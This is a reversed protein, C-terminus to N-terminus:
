WRKNNLDKWAIFDTPRAHSGNNGLKLRNCVEKYFEPSIGGKFNWNDVGDTLELVGSLTPYKHGIKNNVIYRSVQVSKKFNYPKMEKVLRDIESEVKSTFRPQNEFDNMMQSYEDWDIYDNM